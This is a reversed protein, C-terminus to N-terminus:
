RARLPARLLPAVLCVGAVGAALPVLGVLVLVLGGTGGAVVGAAMLAVGALARVGRGARSNMGRVVKM